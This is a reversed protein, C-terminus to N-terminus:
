LSEYEMCRSFLNRMLWIINWINRGNLYKGIIWGFRGFWELWILCVELAWSATPEKRVRIIEHGKERSISFNCNIAKPSHRWQNRRIAKGRQEVSGVSLFHFVYFQSSVIGNSLIQLLCRTWTAIFLWKGSADPRLAAASVHSYLRWRFSASLSLFQHNTKLTSAFSGRAWCLKDKMRRWSERRRRAIFCNLEARAGVSDPSRFDWNLRKEERLSFRKFFRKHLRSHASHSELTTKLFHVSRAVFAVLLVLSLSLNKDICNISERNMGGLFPAGLPMSPIGFVNEM